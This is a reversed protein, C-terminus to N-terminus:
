VGARGRDFEAFSRGEGALQALLPAPSWWRDGHISRYHEIWEVAYGLGLSDAYFMPGGRWRPFGYGYLWVVDIDGSRIAIGEELVRAGEDVLPLMCREVIETESIERRTIGAKDAEEEIIPTVAPDPEGKRGDYRYFGAGTKQGKRGAEVLRDHVRYANPDLSAPDAKQRALYGVDLGALDGMQLPGMPFGFDYIAGDIQEPSAGELLLLGAERQYGQLMRNGIFGYCVGAVVPVKRIRKAFGLATALVDDATADARVVELLKMINAPSFFHLGLVDGPRDTAAAIADIDQYSTNTALIAGRKATAGLRAFVERKVDLDEFVAEIVLDAEALSEFDTTLRFCAMQEDRAAQSLKGKRVGGELTDAIRQRAAEAADEAQEVITVPLGAAACALGIGSGMTGGGIIGVRAIERVPTNKTLGPVRAAEREAFFAHRMAASQPDNMCDLFLERERATGRAFDAGLAARVAEIARKPATQGRMRKNSMQEFRGFVDETSEAQPVDLNSTRRLPAGGTVLREAYGVADDFLDGELIEDLIGADLARRASVPKGTVIMELATELGALRPLRQTGQAGPILGLNVEPQGLKADPRSVRYHCGLALELGGGLANGHIAAIVPKSTAELREVVDPLIPPQPPKGFESIDAGAMFTRGRATLVAADVAEDADTAELAEIIGARVAHSIANVPPNDVLILAIRGRREIDVTAM